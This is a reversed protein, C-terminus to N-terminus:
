ARFDSPVGSQNKKDKNLDNSLLLKSPETGDLIQCFILKSPFLDRISSKWFLERELRDFERDGGVLTVM